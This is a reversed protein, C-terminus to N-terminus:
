RFSLGRGLPYVVPVAKFPPGHWPPLVDAGVASVAETGGLTSAISARVSMHGLQPLMSRDITVTSCAGRITIRAMSGALAPSQCRLLPRRRKRLRPPGRRAGRRGRRTANPVRSAHQLGDGEVEPVREEDVDVTLSRSRRRASSRRASSSASPRATGCVASSSARRAPKSKKSRTQISRAGCARTRRARRCCGRRREPRAHGLVGALTEHATEFEQHEVQRRLRHRSGRVRQGQEGLAVTEGHDAVGAVRRSAHKALNSPRLPM